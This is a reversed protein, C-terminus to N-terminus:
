KASSRGEISITSLQAVDWDAPKKPFEGKIKFTFSLSRGSVIYGIGAHSTHKPKGLTRLVDARTLQSSLGNDFSADMLQMRGLTIRALRYDRYLLVANDYYHSWIRGAHGSSVGRPKGWIQVVDTMSDGLAIGAIEGREFSAFDHVGASVPAHAKPDIVSRLVDAYGPAPGQESSLGLVAVTLCAVALLSVPKM